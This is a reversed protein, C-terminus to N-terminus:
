EDGDLRPASKGDVTYEVVGVMMEDYTPKGFRVAKTPDPNYKNKGSNDFYATVVIMVPKM